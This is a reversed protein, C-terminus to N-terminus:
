LLYRYMIISIVITNEKEKKKRIKNDKFWPHDWNVDEKLRWCLESSYKNVKKECLSKPVCILGWPSSIRIPELLQQVWDDHEIKTKKHEEQIEDIIDIPELLKIGYISSTDDDELHLGTEDGVLKKKGTIIQISDAQTLGPVGTVLFNVEYKYRKEVWFTRALNTITEGSIKFQIRMKNDGVDMNAVVLM